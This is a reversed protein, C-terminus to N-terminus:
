IISFLRVQYTVIEIYSENNSPARVKRSSTFERRNKAELSWESQSILRKVNFIIRHDKYTSLSALECVMRPGHIYCFM